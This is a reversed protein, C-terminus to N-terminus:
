RNIKQVSMQNEERLDGKGHDESLSAGEGGVNKVLRVANWNGCGGVGLWGLFHRREVSRIICM